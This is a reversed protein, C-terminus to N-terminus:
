NCDQRKSPTDNKIGFNRTYYKNDKRQQDEKKIDRIERDSIGNETNEMPERETKQKPATNLSKIAGLLNDCAKLNAKIDKKIDNIEGKKTFTSVFNTINRTKSLGEKLANANKLTTELKVKHAKLAESKTSLNEPTIKLKNYCNKVANLDKSLATIDSRHTREPKSSETKSINHQPSVKPQPSRGIVSM